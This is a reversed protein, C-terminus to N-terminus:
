AVTAGAVLIDRGRIFKEGFSCRVTERGICGLVSLSLQPSERNRNLDKESILIM